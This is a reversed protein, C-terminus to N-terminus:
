QGVASRQSLQNRMVFFPKVGDSLQEGFSKMDELLLDNLTALETAALGGYLLQIEREIYGDELANEVGKAVQLLVQRYYHEQKLKKDLAAGSETTIGKPAVPWWEGKELQHLWAQTTPFDSFIVHGIEHVRFGQVAFHRLSM